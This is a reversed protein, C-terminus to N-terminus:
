RSPERLHPAPPMDETGQEAERAAVVAAAAARDRQEQAKEAREAAVREREADVDPIPKAGDVYAKLESGELTERVM